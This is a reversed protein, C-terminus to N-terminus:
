FGVTKIELKLEIGQKEFVIGKVRNILNMVDAATASGTNVIYNAHMESVQAGGIKEGKLGSKEILKGASETGPNQFVCGASPYSIPQSSSKIKITEAQRAIIMKPDDKKLDMDVSLIINGNKAVDSSRYSFGCDKKEIKMIKGSKTLVTVNKIYTSIFGSWSGMNMSVAGGLAAPIGAFFELGSLGKAACENLLKGLYIGAGAAVANDRFETKDMNGAIKIVVGRIGSDSVLLNSGNGMVFYPEKEESVISIIDRLDEASAPIVLLDAPGGIKFTTHRAMPEDRMIQCKVSSSIKNYLDKM